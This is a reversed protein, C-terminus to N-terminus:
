PRVKGRLRNTEFIWDNREKRAKAVDARVKACEDVMKEKETKWAVSEAQVAEYHRIWFASTLAVLVLAGLFIAYPKM